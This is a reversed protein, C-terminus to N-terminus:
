LRYSSARFPTKLSISLRPAPIIAIDGCFGETLRAILPLSPNFDSTNLSTPSAKESREVKNEVHWMTQPFNINGKSDVKLICIGVTQPLKWHRSPEDDIADPLHEMGIHAHIVCRSRLSGFGQAIYPIDAYVESGTLGDVLPPTMMVAVM